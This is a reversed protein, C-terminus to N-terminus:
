IYIYIAATKVHAFIFLKKSDFFIIIKKQMFSSFLTYKRKNGCLGHERLHM